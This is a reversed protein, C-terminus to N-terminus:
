DLPRGNALAHIGHPGAAYVVEALVILDFIQEDAMRSWRETGTAANLSYITGASSGLYANGAAIVPALVVSSDPDFSWIETGTAADLARVAPGDAIYVTGGEVTLVDAYMAAPSRWIETGTTAQVAIVAREIAHFIVEESIVPRAVIGSASSWIERGTVDLAYIKGDVPQPGGRPERAVLIMGNLATSVSAISSGPDFQWAVTGDAPDLAFLVGPFADVYLHGHRARRVEHVEGGMPARWIERGSIRELAYVNGDNSGIYVVDGAVFPACNVYGGTEFRWLERGSGADLAFVRGTTDLSPDGIGAGLYIRGDVVLLDSQVVGATTFAWLPRGSPTELAHVMGKDDAFYLVGGQALLASHYNGPFAAPWGGARVQSPTPVPTFVSTAGPDPQEPTSAILRRGVLGFGVALGVSALIVWRRTLMPPPREEDGRGSDETV